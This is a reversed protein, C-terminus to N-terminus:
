RGEAIDEWTLNPDRPPALAMLDDWAKMRREYEEQSVQGDRQLAEEAIGGFSQAPDKTARIRVPTPHDNAETKKTGSPPYPAM